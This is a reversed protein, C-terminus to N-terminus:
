EKNKKTGTSRPHIHASSSRSHEHNQGFDATSADTSGTTTTTTSTAPTNKSQTQPIARKPPPLLRFRQSSKRVIKTLMREMITPNISPPQMLVLVDGYTTYRMVSRAPSVPISDQGRPREEIENSVSVCAISPSMHPHGDREKQQPLVSGNSGQIDNVEDGTSLKSKPRSGSGSGLITSTNAESIRRSPGADRRFEDFPSSSFSFTSDDRRERTFQPPQTSSMRLGRGPTDDAMKLNSRPVQSAQTPFQYMSKLKDMPQRVELVGRGPGGTVNWPRPSSRSYVVQVNMASDFPNRDVV